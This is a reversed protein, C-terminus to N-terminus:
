IEEKSLIGSRLMDCFWSEADQWGDEDHNGNADFWAKWEAKTGSMPVIDEYCVYKTM